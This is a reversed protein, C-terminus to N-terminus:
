RYGQAQLHFLEAYKGGRELLEEHSGIERLEGKELV